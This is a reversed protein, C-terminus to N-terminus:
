TEEADRRWRRFKRQLSERAQPDRIKGFKKEWLDMLTGTPDEDGGRILDRLANLAWERRSGPKVAHMRKAQAGRKSIRAILVEIQAADLEFVYADPDWGIGSSAPYVVPPGNADYPDFVFRLDDRAESSMMLRGNGGAVAKKVWVRLGSAREENLINLAAERTLGSDVLQRFGETFAIRQV